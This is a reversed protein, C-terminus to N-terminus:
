SFGQICTAPVRPVLALKWASPQKDMGATHLKQIHGPEEALNGKGENGPERKHAHSFYVPSTENMTGCLSPIYM